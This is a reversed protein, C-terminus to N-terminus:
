EAPRDPEAAPPVSAESDEAAAPASETQEAGPDAQAALPPRFRAAGEAPAVGPAAAEVPAAPPAADAPRESSAAAAAPPAAAQQPDVRGSRVREREREGASRAETRRAPALEDRGSSTKTEIIDGKYVWCKVGLVGYTTHAECFGYDIDARLTQL